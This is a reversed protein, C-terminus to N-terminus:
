KVVMLLDSPLLIRRMRGESNDWVDRLVAEKNSLWILGGCRLDKLFSIRSGKGIFFGPTIITELEKNIEM